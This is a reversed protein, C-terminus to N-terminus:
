PGYATEDRDNKEDLFKDRWRVEHVACGDAPGFWRYRKRNVLDYIGDRLVPPLVVLWQGLQWIGRLRRAIRVVAESREFARGGEVLVMTRPIADTLGHRQRVRRGCDSYLTAFLFQDGAEHVLLFGVCAQCLGCDGDYLILAREMAPPHYCFHEPDMVFEAPM